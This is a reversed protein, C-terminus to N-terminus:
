TPAPEHPNERLQRLAAGVKTAHPASRGDRRMHKLVVDRSTNQPDAGMETCAAHVLAVVEPDASIPREARRHGRRPRRPQAPRRAVPSSAPLGSDVPTAAAEATEPSDDVDIGAAAAILRYLERQRAPAGALCGHRDEIRALVRRRELDLGAEYSTIGWVSMRRWLRLTPWPACVWRRLPIREGKEAVQAAMTAKTAAVAFVWLLPLSSHAALGFADTSGSVNLVVTVVVLAWEVWHLWAVRKRQQTLGLDLLTFMAIAGDVVAPVLWPSDIHHLEALHAVNRFSGYFGGVGLLVVGVLAAPVVNFRDRTFTTM